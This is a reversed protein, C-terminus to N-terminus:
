LRSQKHVMMNQSNIDLKYTAHVPPGKEVIIKFVQLQVPLQPNQKAEKDTAAQLM